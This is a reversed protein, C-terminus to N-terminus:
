AHVFNLTFSEGRHAIASPRIEIVHKRSEVRYREVAFPKWWALTHGNIVVDTFAVTSFTDVGFQTGNQQIAATGISVYSPKAGGGTQTETQNTTLDKIVVSTQRKGVHVQVYIVDGPKVIDPSNQENGAVATALQYTAVNNQCAVILGAGNLYSFYGKSTHATTIVFAGPGVGSNRASCTITPITFRASATAVKSSSFEYGAFSTTKLYHVATASAVGAVTATMVGVGLAIRMLRAM